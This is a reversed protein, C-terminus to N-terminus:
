VPCVESVCRMYAYMSVQGDCMGCVHVSVVCICVCEHVCVCVHVCVHVCVCGTYRDYLAVGEEETGVEMPLYPSTKDASPVSEGALLELPSRCGCM